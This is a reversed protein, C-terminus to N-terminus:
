CQLKSDFDKVVQEPKVIARSAILQVYVDETLIDNYYQIINRYVLDAKKMIWLKNIDM